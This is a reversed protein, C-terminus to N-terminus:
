LSFTKLLPYTWKYRKKQIYEIIAVVFLVYVICMKFIPQKLLININNLKRVHDFIIIGTTSKSENGLLAM